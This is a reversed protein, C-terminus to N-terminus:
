RELMAKTNFSYDQGEELEILSLELHDFRARPPKRPAMGFLLEVEVEVEIWGLGVVEAEEVEDLQEEM